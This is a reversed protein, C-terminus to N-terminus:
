CSTIGPISVNLKTIYEESIQLDNNRKYISFNKTKMILAILSIFRMAIFLLLLYLNSWFKEDEVDLKYLVVSFKESSCRNFGYIMIVICEFSYKIYSFESLLQLSYHFEKIPILFNGLIVFLIQLAVTLVLAIKLNNNFIIGSIHGLSQSCLVTFLILYLYGFYIFISDYFNIIWCYIILTLILPLM